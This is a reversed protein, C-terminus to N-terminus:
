TQLELLISSRGLGSCIYKKLYTKIVLYFYNSQNNFLLTPFFFFGFFLFISAFLGELVLAIAMKQSLLPEESDGVVLENGKSEIMKKM